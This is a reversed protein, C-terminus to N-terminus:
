VESLCQLVIHSDTIFKNKQQLVRIILIVYTRLLEFEEFATFFLAVERINEYCLYLLSSFSPVETKEINSQIQNFSPVYKNQEFIM